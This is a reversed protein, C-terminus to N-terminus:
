GLVTVTNYLSQINSEDPNGSTTLGQWGYVVQAKKSGDFEEQLDRITLELKAKRKQLDQHEGMMSDKEDVFTQVKAKM